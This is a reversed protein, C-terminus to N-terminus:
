LDYTSMIIGSSYPAVQYPPFFFLLNKETFIVNQFNEKSPYTGAFLMASNVAKPNILLDGQISKSVKKLFDKEKNILTDISVFKQEKKDYNVTWLTTNPHAGGTYVTTFFLFAEYNESSYNEYSIDLTYTIDKQVTADQISALFKEKEEEVFIEIKQKVQETVHIPVDVKITHLHYTLPESTQKEMAIGKQVFFFFSLFISVCLFFVFYYIWKM